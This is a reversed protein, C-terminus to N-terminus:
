LNSSFAFLVRKPRLQFRRFLELHHGHRRVRHSAQRQSREPRIQRLIQSGQFELSPSKGQTESSGRIPGRWFPISVM